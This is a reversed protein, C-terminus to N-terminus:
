RPRYVRSQAAREARLYEEYRRRLFPDLNGKRLAFEISRTREARASIASQIRYQM